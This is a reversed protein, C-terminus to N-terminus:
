KEEVIVAGLGTNTLIGGREGPALPNVSVRAAEERLEKILKNAVEVEKTRKELIYSLKFKVDGWSMKMIQDHTLMPYESILTTPIDHLLQEAVMPSGPDKDKRLRALFSDFSLKDVDRKLFDFM